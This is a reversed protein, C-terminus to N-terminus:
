QGRPSYCRYDAATTEATCARAFHECLSVDPRVGVRVCERTQTWKEKQAIHTHTHTHTQPRSYHNYSHTPWSPTPYCFTLRAIAPSIFCVNGCFGHTYGSITHTHTNRAKQKRWKFPFLFQSPHRTPAPSFNWCTTAYLTCVNTVHGANM